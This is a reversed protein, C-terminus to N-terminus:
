NTGMIKSLNLKFTSVANKYKTEQKGWYVQVLGTNKREKLVKYSMPHNKRRKSTKVNFTFTHPVKGL